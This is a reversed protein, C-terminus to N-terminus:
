ERVPEIYYNRKVSCRSNKSGILISSGTKTDFLFLGANTGIWLKADNAPRIATIGPFPFSKQTDTARDKKILGSLQTGIWFLDASEKYICTAEDGLDYHKIKKLFPDVHYINGVGLTSFWLVGDHSTFSLWGINDKGAVSSDSFSPFYQVKKTVPDFRNVGNFSGIWLYGTADENIFTIHDDAIGYNHRLPPRSLKEPHKPDYLLRTFKGTNRDMIHLGDGATGVYFVGQRDEYIARVRNDILTTPDKKDHFYHIFRGTHKDLRNLGAKNCSDNEYFGSGTGVWITGEKDQYIARVQNCSLSTSDKENHKFSTFKGTEKNFRSVGGYTGIWLYHQDDETICIM